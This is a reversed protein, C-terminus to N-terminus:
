FSRNTNLKKILDVENYDVVNVHSQSTDITLIINQSAIADVSDPVATFTVSSDEIFYDYVINVLGTDYDITGATANKYIRQGDIFDYLRVNGNGDDDFGSQVTRGTRYFLNSNLIGGKDAYFGDEPHYLKNNFAITYDELKEDVVDKTIALKCVTNSSIIAKDLNKIQTSLVSERYSELFDGIYSTNVTDYLASVKTSITDTNTNRSKDILVNTTLVLKIIQADVFEPKITAINSSAIIESKITEKAADTLKDASKPKICVYVKGPQGVEEGGYVSIAQIDAFKNKIIVEYDNTTVARYQSQFWKPANDKISQISERDGGGQSLTASINTIYSVSSSFTSIGNGEAGSSTLYSVYIEDGTSLPKGVIGDGFVISISGNRNEEYFYATSTSGLDFITEDAPEIKDYIIGNVSVTLTSADINTQGLDFYAFSTYDKDSVFKQTSYTGEYAAITVTASSADDIFQVVYDKVTSFTKTENGVSSTFLTGAPIIRFNPTGTRSVTCTIETAASTITRPIYNLQKALSVASKRLLASDLFSESLLFNSALSYYHTNYSLIDMLLNLSSGTFEYDSFEERSKFHDIIDQKITDFDLNAVVPRDTIAM